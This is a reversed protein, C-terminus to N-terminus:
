STNPRLRILFPIPMAIRIEVPDATFPCLYEIAPPCPYEFETAEEEPM